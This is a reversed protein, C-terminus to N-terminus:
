REIAGGPLSWNGNDTRRILLIEGQGNRVVVNVSPVIRYASPAQPDDYFDLRRVM